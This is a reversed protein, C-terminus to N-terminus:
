ICIVELVESFDGLIHYGLNVFVLRVRVLRLQAVCVRERGSLRM